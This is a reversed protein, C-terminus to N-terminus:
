TTSTFGHISKFEFRAFVFGGDLPRPDTRVGLRVGGGRPVVLPQSHHHDGQVGAQGDREMGGVNLPQLGGGDGIERGDLNRRRAKTQVERGDIRIDPQRAQQRTVEARFVPHIM